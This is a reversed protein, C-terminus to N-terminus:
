PWAIPPVKLLPVGGASLSGDQLRLPVAVGGPPADQSSTRAFLGLVARAALAAGPAVVGGRVLRDLAAQWGELRVTADARPQLRADLGGGGSGSVALPGWRLDFSPVDVRGGADHWRTAQETASAGPSAPAPAGSLRVEGSAATVTSGLPWTYTKPLVLDGIEVRLDDQNVWARLTTLRVTNGAAEVRVGQGTVEVPGMGSLPVAAALAESTVLAGPLASWRVHQTGEPRVSLTRPALPSIRLRVADARWTLGGPVVTGDGTLVAGPIVLEAALPWGARLPEGGRVTWGLAGMEAAWAGYGDRLQEVTWFWAAGHLAILATAAGAAALLTRRRGRTGGRRM